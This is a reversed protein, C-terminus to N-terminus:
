NKYYNDLMAAARIYTRVADMFVKVSMAEDPAHLMGHGEPLFPCKSKVDKPGYNVANKLKSAYTSGGTRYGDTEGTVDNRADILLKVREDESDVGWPEDNYSEKYEYGSAFSRLKEAVESGKITTPFRGSTTLTFKGEESTAVLPTFGVKGYDADEADLGLAALKEGSTLTIIINMLEADKGSLVECGAIFRALVELANITEGAGFGAPAKGEASVKVGDETREATVHEAGEAAALVKEAESGTYILSASIPVRQGKGGGTIGHIEEFSDPCSLDFKMIGPGGVAVPFIFDPVMSFDPQVQESIYRDLDKMGKEENLGMYLELTINDGLGLETLAEAVYMGIVAACKDDNVGRGILWGDKETVEFQPYIWRDDVEVVDLHSFIGVRKEGSGRKAIGYWNGFSKATMGHKEAMKMATELVRTCDEGFPNPEPSGAKSVSPVRVLEDLDAIINRENKEVFEDIKRKIDENM